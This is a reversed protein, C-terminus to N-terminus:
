HRSPYPQAFASEMGTYTTQPAYGATSGRPYNNAISLSSVTSMRAHIPSGAHSRNAMHGKHAEYYNARSYMDPRLSNHTPPHGWPQTPYYPPMGKNVPPNAKSYQRDYGRDYGRDYYPNYGRDYQQAHHRPPYLFPTPYHRGSRAPQSYPMHYNYSEPFRQLYAPPEQAYAGLYSAVPADLAMPGGRAKSSYTSLRPPSQSVRAAAHSLVSLRMPKSRPPADDSVLPPPERHPQEMLSAPHDPPAVFSPTVMRPVDPNTSAIYQPESIEAWPGVYTHVSNYKQEPENISFSPLPIKKPRQKKKPVPIWNYDDDENQRPM